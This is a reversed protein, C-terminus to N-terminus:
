EKKPEPKPPVLLKAAKHCAIAVKMLKGQTYLERELFPLCSIYELRRNTGLLSSYPSTSRAVNHFHERTAKFWDAAVIRDFPNNLDTTSAAIADRVIGQATQSRARKAAIAREGALVAEIQPLTVDIGSVGGLAVLATGNPALSIFDLKLLPLLNLGLSNLLPPKFRNSGKSGWDNFTIDKKTPPFILEIPGKETNIFNM